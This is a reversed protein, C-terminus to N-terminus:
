FGAVDASVMGGNCPCVKGNGRPRWKFWRSAPEPKLHPHHGM